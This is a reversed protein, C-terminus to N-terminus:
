KTTAVIWGRGREVVSGDEMWGDGAIATSSGIMKHLHFLPLKAPVNCCRSGLLRVARDYYKLGVAERLV